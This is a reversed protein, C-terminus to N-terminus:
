DEEGMLGPGPGDWGASNLLYDAPGLCELKCHTKSLKTKIFLNQMKGIHKLVNKHSLRFTHLRLRSSCPWPKWDLLPARSFFSRPLRNEGGGGERGHKLSPDPSSLMYLWQVQCSWVRMWSGQCSDPLEPPAWICSQGLNPGNKRWVFPKLSVPM